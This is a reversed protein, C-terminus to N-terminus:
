IKLEDKRISFLHANIHNSDIFYFDRRVGDHKFGISEFMKIAPNEDFSEGWIIKFPYSNFGHWCLLKLAEKGYGNGQHTPGIYLSFEARQNILDIDTFGCVGVLINDVKIAYMKVSKNSSLGEFWKRHDDYSILDNQRCWKFIAPDNRWRFMQGLDDQSITDLSTILKKLKIM